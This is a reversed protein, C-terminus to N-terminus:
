NAELNFIGPSLIPVKVFIALKPFHKTLQGFFVKHSSGKFIPVNIKMKNPIKPINNLQESKM